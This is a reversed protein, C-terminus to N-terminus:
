TKRGSLWRPYGHSREAELVPPDPSAFVHGAVLGFNERLTAEEGFAEFALSWWAEDGVHIAALELNCGRAPYEGARVVFLRNDATLQYKRLVREKRVGIWSAAPSAMQELDARGEIFPYSWKRWAEVRGAIRQGFSVVGYERSRQKVEIRGERLKIGLGGGDSLHLYYDIRAPQGEGRGFWDVIAPPIAGRYFWRVEVTPYM